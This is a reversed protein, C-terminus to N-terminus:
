LRRQGAQRRAAGLHDIILAVAGISIASDAINFAPFQWARYYLVIFDIVHQHSVRDILNGLAGALVLALGLSLLAHRRHARWLWGVLLVSLVSALGSLFYHQWGGADGLFGFAAGRNFVLALRLFPLVEVPAAGLLAAYAAQKTLQDAVVVVAALALYATFKRWSATATAPAAANM